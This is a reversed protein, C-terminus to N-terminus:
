EAGGESDATHLDRIKRWNLLAKCPTGRLNEPSPAFYTSCFFEVLYIKPIHNVNNKQFSKIHGQNCWNNISTKGYGTIKSVTQTTLVDPYGSLLETYYLQLHELM